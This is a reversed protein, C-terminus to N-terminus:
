CCFLFWNAADLFWSPKLGLQIPSEYHKWPSVSIVCQTRLANQGDRFIPIYLYAMINFIGVIDCWLVFLIILIQFILAYSCNPFPQYISVSSDKNEKTGGVLVEFSSFIHCTWGETCIFNFLFKQYEGGGHFHWRCGSFDILSSTPFSSLLLM